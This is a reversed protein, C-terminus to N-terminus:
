VPDLQGHAVAVLAPVSVAIGVSQRALVDWDGGSNNGHGIGKLGQCSVARVPSCSPGLPSHRLDLPACPGLKVRVDHFSKEPYPLSEMSSRGFHGYSNM